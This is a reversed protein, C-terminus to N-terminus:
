KYMRPLSFFFSSGKGEESTVWIKGGNKHILEKCLILGLGTGKEGSTGSLVFKEDLKFLKEINEESIGTGNDTVKVVVYPQDAYTTYQMDIKVAGGPSSFKVANSLLNRVVTKIMNEDFFAMSNYRIETLLKINKEEAQAKMVLITENAVISLDHLQPRYEMRGTQARSWELLNQVLRYTSESAEWINKIYGKREEDNYSDFEQHLLESFGMISHFPNKLDHAIISFFKDKTANLSQLGESYIKLKEEDEKRSTIDMLYGRINKLNGQDDRVIIIIDNVWRFEGIANKLRYEVEFFDINNLINSKLKEEYGAKDEPHILSAYAIKGVRFDEQRYGFQIFINPSVYEVPFEERNNRIVVVIPGSIFLNKEASVSEEAQYRLLVSGIHNLFIETLEKNKLTNDKDFSFHISGLTNGQNCITIVLQRRVDFLEILLKEQEAPIKWSKPFHVDEKNYASRAKIAIRTLEDIERFKNILSGGMLGRAKEILDHDGAIAKITFNEQDNDHLNLFVLSAGSLARIDEAIMQFDIRAFPFDMYRMAASSLLRIGEEENKRETIDRGNAILVDRGFYTGKNIIVEKPFTEGNKRRGIWEFAQRVGQFAMRLSEGTRELDNKGPEGLFAPTKGVIEAKSYGYMQVAGDNVDLFHGDEDMIYVADTMCNFLRRYNLESIELAKISEKLQTVDIISGMIQKHNELVANVLVWCVSGDKRVLQCEYNKIFKKENIKSLFDIRDQKNLYLDAANLGMVETASNYGFINSFARNCAIIEGHIDTQYIGALNAEFLNKIQQESIELEAEMIKQQTIDRGSGVTGIINGSDDFIPAKSVDLYLFNGKVNGFEEFRGQQRTKIVQKDTVVCDKGFTHYDPIEPHMARVRDFFYQDPKGFPEEINETFLLKECIAKNVFLFNGELDKAWVLDPLNDAMLRLLHYLKRYRAESEQLTNEARRLHENQARLMEIEKKLDDKEKHLFLITTNIEEVHPLNIRM